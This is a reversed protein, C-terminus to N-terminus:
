IIPKWQCQSQEVPNMRVCEVRAQFSNKKAMCPDPASRLLLRSYASYLDRYHIFLAEAM